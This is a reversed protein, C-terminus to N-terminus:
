KMVRRYKFQETPHSSEAALCCFPQNIQNSCQSSKHQLVV